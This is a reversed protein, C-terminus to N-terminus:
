ATAVSRIAEFATAVPGGARHPPAKLRDAKLVIEASFVDRNFFGLAGISRAEPSTRGRESPDCTVVIKSRAPVKFGEILAALGASGAASSDIVVVDPHFTRLLKVAEERSMVTEVRGIRADQHLASYCDLLFSMEEALVLVSPGM